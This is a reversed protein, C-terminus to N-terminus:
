SSSIPITQPAHPTPDVDPNIVRDYLSSRTRYM